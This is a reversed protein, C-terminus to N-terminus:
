GVPTTPEIEPTIANLPVGGWQLAPSRNAGDCTCDEPIMGGDKFTSSTLTFPEM